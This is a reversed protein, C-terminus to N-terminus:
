FRISASDLTKKTLPLLNIKYKTQVLMLTKVKSHAITFCRKKLWQPFQRYDEANNFIVKAIENYLPASKIFPLKKEIQIKFPDIGGNAKMALYNEINTYLIEIQRESLKFDEIKNQDLYLQNNSVISLSSIKESYMGYLLFPTAELKTFTVLLQLLFACVIFYFLNKDKQRVEKLFLLLLNKKGFARM